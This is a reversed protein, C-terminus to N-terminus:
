SALPRLRDQDIVGPPLGDELEALKAKADHIVQYANAGYRAIVIGSVAEGQATGSASAAASRAPSRCRPSTRFCSRRAAAKDVARGAGNALITATGHLYGRSRVMYENESMEVVSGGVDNNSRQM